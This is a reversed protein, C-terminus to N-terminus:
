RVAFLEFQRNLPIVDARANMLKMKEAPRRIFITKSRTQPSAFQNLEILAFSDDLAKEVRHSM